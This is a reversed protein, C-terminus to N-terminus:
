WRYRDRIRKLKIGCHVILYVDLLFIAGFLRTFIWGFAGLRGSVANFLNPLVCCLFIIAIPVLRTRVISAAMDARSANDSFLEDEDPEMAADTPKRFFLWGMSSMFYEWGFDRALQLYEGSPKANKFDLRYVVDQPECAEFVYFCPPTLGVLRWGSQHQERLWAEEEEYDAITFFRIFTKRM